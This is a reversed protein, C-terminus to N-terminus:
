VHCPVDVCAPLCANMRVVWVLMVYICMFMYEYASGMIVYVQTRTGTYAHLWGCTFWLALMHM